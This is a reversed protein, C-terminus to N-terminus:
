GAGAWACEPSPGTARCWRYASGLARRLARRRERIYLIYIIHRDVRSHGANGLSTKIVRSFGLTYVRNPPFIVRISSVVNVKLSNQFVPLKFSRCQGIVLIAVHSPPMGMCIFDSVLSSKEQGYHHLQQNWNTNKEVVTESISGTGNYTYTYIYIYIYLRSYLCNFFVYSICIYM